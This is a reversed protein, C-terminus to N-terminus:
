QIYPRVTLELMDNKGRFGARQYFTVSEESPWVVLMELNEAQAWAAVHAMLRSGIGQNRYAHRTYVNTVYGFYEELINPKPVKSVKQVFIQAVIQTDTTAIWYAWQQTQLGRQLFAVCADRFTPFEHHPASTAEEMRWDWRIQALEELDGEGAPRYTIATVDM